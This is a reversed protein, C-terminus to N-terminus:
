QCCSLVNPAARLVQYVTSLHQLEISVKADQLARNQSAFPMFRWLSGCTDAALRKTARQVVASDPLAALLFAPLGVKNDRLGGYQPCANWLSAIGHHWTKGSLLAIHLPLRGDADMVSAQDRLCEMITEAGEYRCAVHLPLCGSSDRELKGGPYLGMALLAVERPCATRALAHVVCTSLKQMLVQLRRWFMLIRNLSQDCIDANDDAVCQQLLRLHHDNELCLLISAKLDKAADKVEHRQWELPNLFLRFFHDVCNQGNDTRLTLLDVGPPVRQLVWKWTELSIEPSAACFHLATWGISNPETLLSPDAQLLEKMTDFDGDRIAKHISWFSSIASVRYSVSYVM